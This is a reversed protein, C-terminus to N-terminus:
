AAREHELCWAVARLILKSPDPNSISTTYQKDHTCRLTIELEAPEGPTDPSGGGGSWWTLEANIDSCGLLHEILPISYSDPSYGDVLKRLYNKGEELAWRNVLEEATSM